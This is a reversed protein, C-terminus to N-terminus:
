HAEVVLSVVDASTPPAAAMMAGHPGHTQEVVVSVSLPAQASLLNKSRLASLQPGLPVTFTITPPPTHHGFMAFVAAAGATPSSPGAAGPPANLLVHFKGTHADPPVAVTVKAFLAPADPDESGQLLAPPLAVAGSAPGTGGSGSRKIDGAYRRVPADKGPRPRMIKEGSGPEYDYAFDGIAAYDGATRRAVPQGKSDMFFLFPERQWKALDAGEPLIPEGRAQQKRTWLDWLRDMNSHHLMFLPDVPSMNSQMFGGMPQPPANYAGGVCNHVLNHPSGELLGFGTLGSHFATKPSAFTVFDRPRLASMVTPLSVARLTDPDVDLGPHDKTLGRASDREFFMGGRPDAHIDFWLDAPFRMSRNLLQAYQSGPDFPDGGKWWSSKDVVKAFQDHFDEFAGIFAPHSPNLVDEYMAAPVRPDATWDWYPFAFDPDGSLERCTQEFWGVYGRHWVLFWWNGHPCDVTHVLANRYWNRPDSPPLALMARIATKYSELFRRADPNAVNLRRYRAPAAQSSSSTAMVAAGAAAAASQLVTRRSVALGSIDDAM